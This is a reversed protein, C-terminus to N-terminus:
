NNVLVCEPTLNWFKEADRKTVARYYHQHLVEAGGSHGLQLTLANEDCFNALWYSAYSHRTADQKREVNARVYLARLRDRLATGDVPAVNGTHVGNRSISHRLWNGLVPEIPISRRRQKKTIAAPLDISSEEMDVSTWQLKVLEGHYVDPRVGAFMAISLFPLLEPASANAERLLAAVEAPTYVERETVKTKARDIKAAPNERALGRKVAFAFVAGSERLLLNRYSPAAGDLIKEIMEPTIDAVATAHLPEFRGLSRRLNSQHRESRKTFGLYTQWVEALPKSAARMREAEIFKGVIESLQVNLHAERLLKFAAAAQQEDAPSLLKAGTGHNEKRVKLQQIAVEAEAKNSFFRKQRKGTESLKPPISIWWPSQARTRDCKPAFNASRAM